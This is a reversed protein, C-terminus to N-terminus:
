IVRELYGHLAILSTRVQCIFRDQEADSHHHRLDRVAEQLDEIEEILASVHEVAAVTPRQLDDTWTDPSIATM